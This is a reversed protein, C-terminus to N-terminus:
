NVRSWADALRAMPVGMFAYFIAFAIGGLLGLQTDTFLFQEKIPQLLVGLVSRDITNFIYGLVMVGLVYGRYTNSYVPQAVADRDGSKVTMLGDGGQKDADVREEDLSFIMFVPYSTIARSNLSGFFKDNLM